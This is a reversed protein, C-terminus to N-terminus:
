NSRPVTEGGLTDMFRPPKPIARMPIKPGRMYYSDTGMVDNFNTTGTRALSRDDSHRLFVNIEGFATMVYVIQQAQVPTVELTVTQYTTDTKALQLTEQIESRDQPSTKKLEQMINRVVGQDVAKPANMQITRGSALVLVDQLFVKVENIATGGSKYEFKAALDIRNGPRLMYGLSSKLTVPISIARRGSTIQRDLGSYINKSLIKNDLIHEGKLIPVAAVSDIVDKPDGIIGPPVQSSPVPSIVEIDNPRITEFQLIDRVAVVMKQSNSLGYNRDLLAEEGSIYQYVLFVALLALGTSLLIARREM